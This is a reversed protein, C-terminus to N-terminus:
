PAETYTYDTYQWAGNIMSYLRAYLMVGNTPINNIAGTTLATTTAEASNYVDSSGPKQKQMLGSMATMDRGKATAGRKYDPGSGAKAKPPSTAM